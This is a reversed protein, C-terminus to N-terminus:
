KTILYAAGAVALAIAFSKEYRSWEREDKAYASRGARALPPNDINRVECNVFLNGYAAEPAVTALSEGPAMDVITGFGLSQGQPSLYEVPTGVRVGSLEGLSVRAYYPAGKVDSRAIKNLVVGRVSIPRNLDFVARAVAGDVAREAVSVDRRVRVDRALAASPTLSNNGDRLPTTAVDQGGETATFSGEGRGVIGGTTTDVLEAIATYSVSTGTADGPRLTVSLTRDAKIKTKLAEYEPVRVADRKITTTRMAAAVESPAINAYGPMVSIAAYAAALGRRALDVNGATETAGVLAVRLDTSAYLEGGPRVTVAGRTETTTDGAGHSPGTYAAAKTAQDTAAQESTPAADQAHAAACSLALAACVSLSLARRALFRSSLSAPSIM